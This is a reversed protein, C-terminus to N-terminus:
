AFTSSAVQTIMYPAAHAAPFIGEGRLVLSLTVAPNFHAGSVSALSYIMCTLAAAAAWPTAPSKGLVCFGVTLCLYFTGIFESVLMSTMSYQFDHPIYDM